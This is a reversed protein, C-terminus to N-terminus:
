SLNKLVMHRKRRQHKLNNKLVM